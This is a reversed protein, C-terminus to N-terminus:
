MTENIYMCGICDFIDESTVDESIGSGRLGYKIICLMDDKSLKSLWEAVELNKKSM